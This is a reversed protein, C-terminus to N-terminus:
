NCSSVKAQKNDLFRSEYLFVDGLFIETKQVLKKQEKMWICFILTGKINTLVVSNNNVSADVIYSLNPYYTRVVKYGGSPQLQILRNEVALFLVEGLNFVTTILENVEQDPIEERAEFKPSRKTPDATPQSIVRLLRCKSYFASPTGSIHMACLVEEIEFSKNEILLKKINVVRDGEPFESQDRFTGANIDFLLLRYKLGAKCLLVLVSGERDLSVVRLIQEKLSYVLCPMRHDLKINEPEFLKALLLKYDPDIWLVLHDFFVRAREEKLGKVNHVVAEGNSIVLLFSSVARGSVIYRQTGLSMVELTPGQRLHERYLAETSEKLSRGEEAVVHTNLPTDFVLRRFRLRSWDPGISGITKYMFLDGSSLQVFLYIKNDLSVQEIATIIGGVHVMLPYVLDWSPDSSSRWPDSLTIMEKKSKIKELGPEELENVVQETKQRSSSRKGMEPTMDKINRVIASGHLFYTRFLISLHVSQHTETNMHFLNVFGDCYAVLLQKDHVSFATVGQLNESSDPLIGLKLTVIKQEANKAIKYFSLTLAKDLFLIM